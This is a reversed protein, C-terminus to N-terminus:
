SRSSAAGRRNAERVGALTDMTEGSQSIAVVLDEHNVVLNRYRFESAIEIEVPLSAWREFLYKALLGAHYATGCAVVVIRRLNKAQELSLSLEEFRVEGSLDFKDRLTDSVAKPQEFIEKLMFDEYGGKEAADLDWAVEM